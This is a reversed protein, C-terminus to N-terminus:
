GSAGDGQSDDGQKDNGRNDDGRRAHGHAAHDDGGRLQALAHGVVPALVAVGDRVGGPSGPLNVVLTAGRVGVLARSLVATPVADRGAARVAEALGPVEREIVQRTAEPTVDRPALGTGGTTAILAVDDGVAALMASVIIDVDDPVLVIGDVGFGLEGLLSALLPGSRDPYAGAHARDSVTVVRARAGSPVGGDTPHATGGTM